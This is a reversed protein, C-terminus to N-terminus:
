AVSGPTQRREIQSGNPPSGARPGTKPKIFLFLLALAMQTLYNVGHVVTAAAAAKEEGISLLHVLSVSVFYHVSGLGGPSPVIVGLTSIAFLLLLMGPSVRIDFAALATHFYLAATAWIALNLLFLAPLRRPRMAEALGAQLSELAGAVRTWLAPWRPLGLRALLSEIWIPRFATAALVALAAFTVIVFAIFAQELQPFLALAQERQAALIMAFMAALFLFDFLVRDAVATSAAEGLPRGTDRRLAAIRVVEGLRSAVNNVGYGLANARQAAFAEGPRLPRPLLLLWRWGRGALCALSWFVMLVMEGVGLGTLERWLTGADTGRFTLYLLLGGLVLGLLTSFWPPRPKRM